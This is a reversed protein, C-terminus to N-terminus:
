LGKVDVASAWSISDGPWSATWAPDIQRVRHRRSHRLGAAVSTDWDGRVSVITITEPPVDHDLLQRLQQQLRAAEEERGTFRVVTAEPGSGATPNGIDAGTLLRTQFAIERTNRCNTRLNARVPQTALIMEFAGAEFGTHLHAQRNPDFFMSWRGDALGGSILQDLLDLHDFTMLDQAEDVILHDARDRDKDVTDFSRVIVDPQALRRALYAALPRSRCVLLVRRGDGAAAMRRAVEAALFTKGTGAGGSCLVRPNDLVVDLRDFQESTLRDFSTELSDARAALGPSKDFDPRLVNVLSRRTAADISGRGRQKEAWYRTARDVIAQIGIQRLDTRGACTAQDWEFGTPLDVDTTVVLHGFVLQDTVSRGLRDSLRRRLAYMASQAQGFPGESSTRSRGARDFYTWVGDHVSVGAGKVEVVLVMRDTVLLLDIEATLKYDHEPLNLSHLAVGPIDAADLLDYVRRESSTVSRTSLLDRPVMRM